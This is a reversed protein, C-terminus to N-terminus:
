PVQSRSANDGSASLMQVKARVKEIDTNAQATARSPLALHLAIIILALSTAVHRKILPPSRRENLRLGHGDQCHSHGIPLM